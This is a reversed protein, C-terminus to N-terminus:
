VHIDVGSAGSAYASTNQTSLTDLDDGDHSVAIAHASGSQDDLPTDEAGDEQLSFSLSGSDAKLGADKLALELARSDRQLLELTEPREAAIVAIIRNDHGVELQVSVKGLNAPKLNVVFKDQGDQVARNIQVAVQSAAANPTSRAAATETGPSPHSVTKLESGFAAAAGNQSAGPANSQALLDHARAPMDPLVPTEKINSAATLVADATTNASGTHNTSQGAQAAALNVGTAKSTSKTTLESDGGAEESQPTDIVPNNAASADGATRMQIGPVGRAANSALVTAATQGAITNHAPLGTVPVQGAAPIATRTPIETAPTATPMAVAPTASAPGSPQATRTAELGKSDM